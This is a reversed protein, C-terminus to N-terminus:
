APQRGKWWTLYIPCWVYVNHVVLVDGDWESSVGEQRTYYRRPQLGANLRASHERRGAVTSVWSGDDDRYISWRGRVPLAKQGDLPGGIYTTEVRMYKSM